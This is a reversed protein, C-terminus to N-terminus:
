SRLNRLIEEARKTVLAGFEFNTLPLAHSAISSIFHELENRLPESQKPATVDDYVAGGRSGLLTIRRIKEPFVRSVALHATLGSEFVITVAAIDPSNKGTVSVIDGPHFLHEIIALDHVGADMFVGIDDRIPGDSLHEGLYAITGETPLFRVGDNFLYQYGVMFIRNGLLPRISETEAVSMCIPKEVLVHKNARLAKCILEAHTSAPTAIIVADINSDSLLDEPSRPTHRTAIGALEVGAMNGLLREYHKGFRGNGILGIRIM